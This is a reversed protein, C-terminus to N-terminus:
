MTKYKGNMKTQLNMKIEDIQRQMENNILKDQNLKYRYYYILYYLGAFGLILAGTEIWNINKFFGGGSDTSGGNEMLPTGSGADMNVMPTTSVPASATVPAPAPAPASATVPTTPTVVSPTEM